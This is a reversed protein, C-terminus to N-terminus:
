GMSGVNPVAKPIKQEKQRIWPCKGLAIESHPVNSGRPCCGMPLIALKYKVACLFRSEWSLMKGKSPMCHSCATYCSIEREVPGYYMCETFNCRPQHITCDRVQKIALGGTDCCKEKCDTDKETKWENWVVKFYYFPFDTESQLIARKHNYITFMIMVVKLPPNRRSFKSTRKQIELNIQINWVLFFAHFHM